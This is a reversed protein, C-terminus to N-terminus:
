LPDGLTDVSNDDEVALAKRESGRAFLTFLGYAGIGAAYALYIPSILVAAVIAAGIAAVLFFKLAKLFLKGIVWFLGILIATAIFFDGPGM